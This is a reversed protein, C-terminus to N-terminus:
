SEQSAESRNNSPKSLIRNSAGVLISDSPVDKTVVAGAGVIANKGITIGGLVIANSGIWAGDEIVIPKSYHKYPPQTSLDLGGTELTVGKSIRVYSGISIPSKAGLTCGPGIAVHKGLTINHGYKIQTSWHCSNGSGSPDNILAKFKFHSMLRSIFSSFSLCVRTVARTLPNNILIGILSKIFSM